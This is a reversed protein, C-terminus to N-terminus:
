AVRTHGDTARNFVYTFYSITIVLNQQHGDLRYGRDGRRSITPRALADTRPGGRRGEARDDINPMIFFKTQQRVCGRELFNPIARPILFM